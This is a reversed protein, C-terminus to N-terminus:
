KRFPGVIKEYDPELRLKQFDPEHDLDTVSYGQQVAKALYVWAKENNDLLHHVMAAIALVDANQPSRQLALNLSPLAKGENAKKQAETTGALQNRKILLEARHALGKPGLQYQQMLTLAQDYAAGAAPDEQGGLQRLADGLNGLLLISKDNITLGSRFSDAALPYSGKYYRATGWGSYIGTIIAKNDIRQNLAQRFFEEAEDYRALKLCANGANVYGMQGTGNLDIVRQAEALAEAFRGRDLWFTSLENHSSWYDPWASVAARFHQEAEAFNGEEQYSYALGLIAELNASQQARAHQYSERAKAYDELFLLAQGRALDAELSDPAVEVARDAAALALNISKTAATADESLKAKQFHAQSLAAFVPASANESQGIETLAQLAADLATQTPEGQLITLAELYKEEAEPNKFAVTSQVQAVNLKLAQVVKNTIDAQLRAYEGNKGTATGTLIPLGEQNQVRYRITVADGARQVEGTLLLNVGLTKAITTPNANLLNAQLAEAVPLLHLDTVSSLAAQLTRAMGRGVKDERTPNQTERFPLIVMTKNLPLVVTPASVFWKRFPTEISQRYKIGVGLLLSATVTLIVQKRWRHLYLALLSLWPKAAAAALLERAEHASPLRTAAEKRLCQQLMTRVTDPTSARLLQWNPEETRIAHLLDITDGGQFPRQGTLAEFCICGFSWLDTRHDLPQGYTQEPSMYPVTGSIIHPATTWFSRTTELMPAGATLDSTPADHSLMKALGFDLVKVVGDPTIKINAPKLDRHIVDQKQAEILAATIQEFIPLAATLSLRSEKMSKELTIGPVYELVIYPPDAQLEMAYIVAINPHSKMRALMRAERKFRALADLDRAIHPSLVKIAVERDMEPEDALYVEGMGGKGLLTRIQYKGLQQGILNLTPQTIADDAMNKIDDPLPLVPTELFAPEQKEEAVLKEVERQLSPDGNCAQQLFAAHQETPLDLVQNLLPELQQWNKASM